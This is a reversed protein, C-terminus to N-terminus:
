VSSVRTNPKNEPRHNIPCIKGTALKKKNKKLYLKGLSSRFKVFFQLYRNVNEAGNLRAITEDVDKLSKKHLELQEYLQNLDKM